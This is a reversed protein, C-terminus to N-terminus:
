RTCQMLPLYSRRYLQNCSSLLIIGDKPQLVIQSVESGDNYRTTSVWKFTDAVVTGSGTAALVARGGNGANLTYTGLSHWGVEGVTEDLLVVSEGNATSISVSVSKSQSANPAVWALVEYTGGYALVPSYTVTAKSGGPALHVTAGFQRRDAAQETWGASAQAEDDDL